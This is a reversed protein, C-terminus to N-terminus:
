LILMGTEPTVPLPYFPDVTTKLNCLVFSYCENTETILGGISFPLYQPAYKVDHGKTPKFLILDRIDHEYQIVFNNWKSKCDTNNNACFIHCIYYYGRFYFKAMYCGSFQFSFAPSNREMPFYTIKDPQYYVHVARNGSNFVDNGFCFFSFQEFNNLGKIRERLNPRLMKNPLNEICWQYRANFEIYNNIM